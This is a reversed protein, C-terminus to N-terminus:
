SRNGNCLVAWFILILHRLGASRGCFKGSFKVMLIHSKRFIGYYIGYFNSIQFFLRSSNLFIRLNVQQRHIAFFNNILELLKESDNPNSLALLSAGLKKCHDDAAKWTRSSLDDYVCKESGVTTTISFSWQDLIRSAGLKEEFIWQVIQRSLLNLGITIM